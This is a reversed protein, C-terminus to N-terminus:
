MVLLSVRLLRAVVAGYVATGKAFVWNFGAFFFDLLINAVFGLPWGVVGGAVFGAAAVEVGRASAHEGLLAPLITRLVNVHFEAGAFRALALAAGVLGFFVVWFGIPLVAPRPGPGHHKPRLLIACLAPSLTLSNLGSILTSGAITLAFQRYFQGTIGTIFAAP